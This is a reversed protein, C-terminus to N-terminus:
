ERHTPTSMSFAQITPTDNSTQPKPLDGMVHFQRIQLAQRRTQLIAEFLLVSAQRRSYNRNVAANGIAAQRFQDFRNV